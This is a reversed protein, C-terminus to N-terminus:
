DRPIHSVPQGLVGMAQPVPYGLPTAGYPWKLHSIFSWPTVPNTQDKEFQWFLNRLLCYGERWHRLSVSHCGTLPLKKILLVANSNHDRERITENSGVGMGKSYKAFVSVARRAKPHFWACGGSSIWQSGDSCTWNKLFLHTSSMPRGPPELLASGSWLSFLQVQHTKNREQGSSHIRGIIFMAPILIKKKILLQNLEFSIKLSESRAMRVMKVSFVQFWVFHLFSMPHWATFPLSEQSIPFWPISAESQSLESALSLKCTESTPLLFGLPASNQFHFQSDPLTCPLPGSLLSSRLSPAGSIQLPDGASRWRLGSWCMCTSLVVRPQLFFWGLPSSPVVGTNWLDLFQEKEWWGHSM